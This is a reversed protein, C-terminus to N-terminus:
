RPDGEEPFWIEAVERGDIKGTTIQNASIKATGIENIPIEGNVLERMFARGAEFLVADAEDLRRRRKRDWWMLGSFVLIFGVPFGVAIVLIELMTNM